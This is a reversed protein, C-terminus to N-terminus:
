ESEPSGGTHLVAIDPRCLGNLSRQLRSLDTGDPITGTVVQGWGHVGADTRGAGTLEVPQRVVRAVAAALVGMVTRLEGNIAFGHFDTGDYAVTLRVNRM